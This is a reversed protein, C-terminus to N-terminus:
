KQSFTYTNRKLKVQGALM